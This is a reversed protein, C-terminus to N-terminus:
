YSLFTSDLHHRGAKLALTGPSTSPTPRNCQATPLCCSLSKCPLLAFDQRHASTNILSEALASAQTKRPRSSGAKPGAPVGPKRSSHQSGSGRPLTVAM